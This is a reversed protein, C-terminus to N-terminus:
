HKRAGEHARKISREESKASKDYVFHDHAQQRGVKPKDFTHVEKHNRLCESTPDKPNGTTRLLRKDINPYEMHIERQSLEDRLDEPNM